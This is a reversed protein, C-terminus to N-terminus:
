EAKRLAKSCAFMVAGCAAILLVMTVASTTDGTKYMTGTSAAGAAAVRIISIPSFSTMTFKIVGNAVVVATIFEVTGDAKEHAVLIIDGTRVGAVNLTIDVPGSQGAKMVVDLDMSLLPTATYGNGFQSAVYTDAADSLEKDKSSSLAVIKVEEVNDSTGTISSGTPSGVALAISSFSLVMVLVLAIAMMRKTTKM